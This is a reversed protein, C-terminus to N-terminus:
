SLEVEIPESSGETTVVLRSPREGVDTVLVTYRNADDTCTDEDSNEITLRMTGDDDQEASATPACSGSFTAESVFLVSQSESLYTGAAGRVETVDSPALETGRIVTVDGGNASSCSVLAATLSLGALSRMFTM